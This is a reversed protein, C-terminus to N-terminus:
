LFQSFLAIGVAVTIVVLLIRFAKARRRDTVAGRDQWERWRIIDAEAGTVVPTKVTM